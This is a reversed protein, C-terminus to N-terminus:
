RLVREQRRARRRSSGEKRRWVGCAPPYPPHGSGTQHLGVSPLRGSLSMRFREFRVLSRGTAAGLRDSQGLGAANSM